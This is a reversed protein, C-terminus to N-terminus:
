NWSNARRRLANPNVQWGKWNTTFINLLVHGYPVFLQCLQREGNTGPEDIVRPGCLSLENFFGNMQAQLHKNAKSKPVFKKLVDLMGKHLYGGKKLADSVEAYLNHRSLEGGQSKAFPIINERPIRGSPDECVELKTDRREQCCINPFFSKATEKRGQIKFLDDLNSSFICFAKLLEDRNTDICTTDENKVIENTVDIAPFVVVGDRDVEKKCIDTENKNDREERKAMMDDYKMRIEEKAWLRSNKDSVDNQEEKMRKIEEEIFPFICRDKGSNPHSGAPCKECESGTGGKAFEDLNCTHCRTHRGDNGLGAPCGDFYVPKHGNSRGQGDYGICEYSGDSTLACTHMSGASVQVYKAGDKKKGDPNSLPWKPKKGNSRGQGDYGICEYAGESTLACTHSAGASVQVYKAGDKKKGGPNSLPWKPKHKNSQGHGDDWICEYSGDDVLACTHLLGVSVQDYKAGNKKKENWPILGICEYAGESTLACTHMAGASVQVYKAGDKKKGGPNSTPWKAKYGNSQNHQNSGICEYAGESTLACTHENGASVQVYKAGDKNKGDSKLKPWKPKHGNSRGDGDHGICEYSGDDVLACTHKDGASVQIYKAGDKNKGDPNSKPWKPKNGNSQGNVVYGICEYSGGSTLACTHYTGASIQKLVINLVHLHVAKPKHNNSQGYGNYGICEYAGQSTLACTHWKGASVQIYKAGDKNEGDPNSLPWKPKKGNTQGHVDAGICEYAGESTLACTHNDGASVQVYKTGDKKGNPNSKPWKPKHENSQGHGDYWICEYSGDDVLACTHKDGASVQIYKAGDKKPWKPKEGNSQGNVDSGICEYSGDDM